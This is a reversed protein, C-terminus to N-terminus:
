SLMDMIQAKSQAGVANKVVKGDRLVLLTPISMVGYRAALEPEDDVNVKGVKVREGVEGAVEDIIPGVMRCPGCWPAWFDVLVTKQSHLVEKEFNEKTFTQVNM